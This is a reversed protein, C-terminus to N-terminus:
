TIDTYIICENQTMTLTDRRLKIIRCHESIYLRWRGGNFQTERSLNTNTDFISTDGELKGHHRDFDNDVAVELGWCPLLRTVCLRDGLTDDNARRDGFHRCLVSVPLYSLFVNMRQNTDVPDKVLGELIIEGCQWNAREVQGTLHSLM